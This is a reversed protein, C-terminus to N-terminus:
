HTLSALSIFFFLLYFLVVLILILGKVIQIVEFIQLNFDFIEKRKSYKHIFKSYMLMDIMKPYGLM